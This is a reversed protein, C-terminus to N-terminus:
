ALHWGLCTDEKVAQPFFFLIVAQVFVHKNILKVFVGGVDFKAITWQTQILSYLACISNKLFFIGLIYRNGCPGPQGPLIVAVSPQFFSVLILSPNGIFVLIIKRGRNRYSFSKRFLFYVLLVVPCKMKFQRWKSAKLGLFLIRSASSM